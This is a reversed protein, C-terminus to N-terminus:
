QEPVLLVISRQFSERESKNYQPTYGGRGELPNETLSLALSIPKQDGVAVHM